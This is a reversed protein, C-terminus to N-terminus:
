PVGREHLEDRSVPEIRAVAFRRFRPLKAATAGRKVIRVPVLVLRGDAETRMEFHQGAYKKGLSIQGSAGVTKLM